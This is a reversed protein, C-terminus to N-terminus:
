KTVTDGQNFQGYLFRFWDMSSLQVRVYSLFISNGGRGGDLSLINSGMEGALPNLFCFYERRKKGGRRGSLKVRPRMRTVLHCASRPLTAVNEQIDFRRTRALLVKIDSMLNMKGM